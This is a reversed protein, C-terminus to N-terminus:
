QPLRVRKCDAATVDFSEPGWSKGDCTAIYTYSGENLVFHAVGSSACTPTSPPFIYNTIAANYTSNDDYVEVEIEIGCNPDHDLWVIAQGFRYDIASNAGCAINEYELVMNVAEANAIDSLLPFKHTSTANSIQVELRAFSREFSDSVFAFYNFGLYDLSDNVIITDRPSSSFSGSYITRGNLILTGSVADTSYPNWVEILIENDEFNICGIKNTNKGDLSNPIISSRKIKSSGGPAPSDDSDSCSSLVFLFVLCLTINLSISRM